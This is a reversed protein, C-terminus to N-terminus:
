KKRAEDLGKIYAKILKPSAINPNGYEKNTKRDLIYFSSHTTM